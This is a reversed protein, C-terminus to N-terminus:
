FLVAIALTILTVTVSIIIQGSTIAHKTHLFQIKTDYCRSEMADFNISAKRYSRSLLNAYLSATTQISKRYNIYGLRSKASEKMTHFISMLIFIYRYILYMLEIILSPCKARRLVCIIESMPTTLSLLYLCSLAGLARAMVLVTRSQTLESVNLWFGFIKVSIVGGSQASVEFLLALGSILLFSVPLALFRAYERVDLKGAAVTFFAMTVSLFIGTMPSKSAICIVLLVISTWFKFEANVTKLRSTQAAIDIAFFETHKHRTLIAILAGIALCIVGLLVVGCKGYFLCWILIMALLATIM